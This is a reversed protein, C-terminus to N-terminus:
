RGHLATKAMARVAAILALADRVDEEILTIRELLKSRDGLPALSAADELLGAAESLLASILEHRENMLSVM